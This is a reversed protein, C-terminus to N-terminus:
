MSYETFNFQHHILLPFSRSHGYKNTGGTDECMIINQIQHRHENSCKKITKVRYVGNKHTDIKKM